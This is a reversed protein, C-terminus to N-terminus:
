ISKIQKANQFVGHTEVETVSTVVSRIICCEILLPGNDKYKNTKLNNLLCFYGAIRSQAKPLALFAADSDVHLQMDSTYYHIFVNQYTNAYDLLQQVKALVNKTPQSQQSSIDNLAPLMISDLAHAYYLFIGAVIQVYSTQKPTLFSSTDLQRTYQRDSKQTWKTIIYNHPSYQPFTCITHQLKQLANRVYDPMSIDVYGKKYNWNLTCGLFKKGSQDVICTYQQKITKQLYNLDENKFFNVGFDDICLCFITKRTKHAWLGLTGVIPYYIADKLFKSLHIYALVTVQKLGYMGKRIKIYIFDNQVINYLNYNQQIDEFFYKISIKMYEPDKMPTHLFMDKLDMSCFRAGKQADSIVSNFLLKTELM